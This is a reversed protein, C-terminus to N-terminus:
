SREMNEVLCEVVKVKCGLRDEFEKIFSEKFDKWEWFIFGLDSFANHPHFIFENIEIECECGTCVIKSIGREKYNETANKINPTAKCVPCEVYELGCDGSGFVTPKLMIELGCREMDFPLKGPSAIIKKAGKDIEYGPANMWMTCESLGPKVAKIEILWNLIEAAKKEKGPFAALVPVISTSFYTNPSPKKKKKQWPFRIM